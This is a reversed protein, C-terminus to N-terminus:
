EEKKAILHIHETADRYQPFECSEAAAKMINKYVEPKDNHLDIMEKELGSIFSEAGAYSIVEFGSNKVENVAKIPTSFYASTFGPNDKVSQEGFYAYVNKIDSFTDSFETIGSKIIGWSNLYAALIIGGKKLIRKAQGLINLREDKKLVHYMPGMLLVVDYTESKLVNLNSADECIYGEAKLNAQEIQSKAIDLEKQSIDFLTVNYGKKLLEISYRGTGCGIDCVEGKNPFYKNMLFMTSLFEVSSYPNSLRNFEIEANEDYYKKVEESM